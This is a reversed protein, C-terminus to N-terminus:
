KSAEQSWQHQHGHQAHQRNEHHEVTAYVDKAASHAAPADDADTPGAAGAGSEATGLSGNPVPNGTSATLFPSTWSSRSGLSSRCAFQVTSDILTNSACVGTTHNYLAHKCSDGVEDCSRAAHKQIQRGILVQRVVVLGRGV